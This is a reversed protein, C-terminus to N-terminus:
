PGVRRKKDFHKIVFSILWIAILVAVIFTMHAQIWSNRVEWFAESYYKRDGSIVFHEMAEEYQQAHLYAKGVGDHALISMQNLRLVENWKDLSEQYMGKEYLGIAHYIMLAYDTPKFSQLYGKDGDATWINGNNDVAITSLKAFIGAIDLDFTFSGFDFIIEGASSYINIYGTNDCTYIIGQDDVYLDTMEPSTWDQDVFVNGGATNHKKLGDTTNGMTTTYVINDDDIFLNSFTNPVRAVLNALQARTFIANQLAQIFSLRTRNVAFYGLFDGTPALQIVGNYVGDSVIYLNGGNDVSIKSPEFKTDGYSPSEPRAYSQQFNFDKDFRFVMKASPDAAYIDGTRSVFVGKPNQMGEYTLIGEVTGTNLSYKVIRANGSDAIYMMNDKDIFIDEPAALGLDTITKDPLYADQTRTWYGKDDMTYTYSTAQSAEVGPAPILSVIFATLLLM